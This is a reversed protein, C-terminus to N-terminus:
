KRVLVQLCVMVIIGGASFLKELKNGLYLMDKPNQSPFSRDPWHWNLVAVPRIVRLM